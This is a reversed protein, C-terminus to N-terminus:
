AGRSCLMGLCYCVRLAHWGMCGINCCHSAWVWGHWVRGLGTAGIRRCMATSLRARPGQRRARGCVVRKQLVSVFGPGILRASSSLYSFTMTEKGLALFPNVSLWSKCRTAHTGTKGSTIEMNYPEGAMARLGLEGRGCKVGAVCCLCGCM